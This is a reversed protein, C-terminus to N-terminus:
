RCRIAPFAVTPMPRRLTLPYLYGNALNNLTPGTQGNNWVYNVPTTANVLEATPMAWVNTGTCIVSGTMNLAKKVQTTTVRQRGLANMVTVVYTGVVLNSISETTAGNGWQYTYPAFGSQIMVAKLEGNNTNICDPEQVTEIVAQPYYNYAPYKM